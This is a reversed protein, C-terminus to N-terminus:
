RRRETIEFLHGDPDRFFARIEWDYTVPPTLFEAGRARLTEYAAHCDPVALILETAARDPDAPPAFTVTPKDATPPGGEVVLLWSGAFRFVASGLYSGTEEAGLVDRCWVRSRELDSAVLLRTVSTVTAPFTPASATGRGDACAVM